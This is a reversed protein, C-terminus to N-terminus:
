DFENREESGKIGERYLMLRNCLNELEMTSVEKIREKAEEMAAAKSDRQLLEVGM